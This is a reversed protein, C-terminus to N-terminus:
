MNINMGGSNHKTYLSKEGYQAVTDQGNDISVINELKQMKLKLSKNERRKIISYATSGVTCLWAIGVGIDSKLFDLLIDM